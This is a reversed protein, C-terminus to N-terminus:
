RRRPSRQVTAEREIVELYGPGVFLDRDLPHSADPDLGLSLLVAREILRVGAPCVFSRERDVNM